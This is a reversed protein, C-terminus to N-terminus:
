RQSKLPPSFEIRGYLRQQGAFACSSMDTAIGPMLHKLVVHQKLIRRDLKSLAGCEPAHSCGPPSTYNVTQLQGAVRPGTGSMPQACCVVIIDDGSSTSRTDFLSVMCQDHELVCKM